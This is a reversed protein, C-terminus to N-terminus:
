DTKLGSFAFFHENLTNYDGTNILNKWAVVENQHACLLEHNCWSSIAELQWM